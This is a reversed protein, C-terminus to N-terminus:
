QVGMDILNFACNAFVETRYIDEGAALEQRLAHIEATRDNVYLDRTIISDSEVDYFRVSVDIKSKFIKCLKHWEHAYLFPFTMGDIKNQTRGIQEGIVEARANRGANVITTIVYSAGEKTMPVTVWETGYLVKVIPFDYTGLTYNWLTGDTYAAPPIPAPSYSANPM